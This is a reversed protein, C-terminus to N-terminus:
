RPGPRNLEASTTIPWTIIKGPWVPHGAVLVMYRVGWIQRKEKRM